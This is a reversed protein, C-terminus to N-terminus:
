IFQIIIEAELSQVTSWDNSDPPELSVSISTKGFLTPVYNDLEAIVMASRWCFVVM